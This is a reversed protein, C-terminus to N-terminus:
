IREKFKWGLKKLDKQLQKNLIEVGAQNLHSHDYFHDKSDVPLNFSYDLFDVGEKLHHDLLMNKFKVFITHDTEKPYPQTVFLINLNNKKTYDLIRELAEVYKQKPQYNEHKKFTSLVAVSDFKECYGKGVYDDPDYLPGDELKRFMRETLLNLSRIEKKNKLIDLAVDDHPLNTALFARSEYDDGSFSFASLEMIILEVNEPVVLKRLLIDTDLLTQSSSGLNFMNINEKEFLRPDFTRYAHSSGMVIVDHYADRDFDRFREYSNGGEWILDDNLSYILPKGKVKVKNLVMFIGLYFVTAILVLKLINIVFKM